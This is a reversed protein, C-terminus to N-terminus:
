QVIYLFDVINLAGCKSCKKTSSVCKLGEIEIWKRLLVDFEKQDFYGRIKEFIEQPSLNISNPYDTGEIKAPIEEIVLEEGCSKCKATIKM